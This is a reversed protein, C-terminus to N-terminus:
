VIRKYATSRGSGVTEVMGASSAERIANLARMRSFGLATELESRSMPGTSLAELAKRADESLKQDIMRPLTVKFVNTSLEIKPKSPQDKYLGMMRPIGTGYSEMLGLRYFVSALKENRRSSTGLLIDDLGLGKRIGGISSVSMRDPYMEILTSGAIAYDRHVIANVIAERAADEPYDRMDIRRAGEIRSRRSNHRDVFGYAKEFQSLLSGSFEERDQFTTKYGDDFVAAKIGQQFQDSLMYGLNTFEGNRVMGISTMQNRELMLGNMGFIRISEEFTLDQNASPMDEYPTSPSERIMKLIGPEDLPINSPGNRVLVGGEKLGKEKWYYPKNAGEQVDIRIVDKGEMVVTQVSFGGTIPPRVNDSISSVVRNCVDDQDDVGVVNGDDDIGIYITGGSTNSMSVVAKIVKNTFEKKFETRSDEILGIGM